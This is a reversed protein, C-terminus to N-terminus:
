SYEPDGTEEFVGFRVRREHIVAPIEHPKWTWLPARIEEDPLAKLFTPFDRLVSGPLYTNSM